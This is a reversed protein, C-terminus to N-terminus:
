VNREHCMGHYKSFLHAFWACKPLLFSTVYEYVVSFRRQYHLLCWALVLSRVLFTILWRFHIFLQLTESKRWYYGMSYLCSRTYHIHFYYWCASRIASFLTLNLRVKGFTESWQNLSYGMTRCDLFYNLLLTSVFSTFNCVMSGLPLLKLCAISFGFAQSFDCYLKM